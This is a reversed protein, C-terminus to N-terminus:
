FTGATQHTEDDTKGGNCIHRRKQELADERMKLRDPFDFQDEIDAMNKIYPIENRQIFRIPFMFVDMKNTSPFNQKNHKPLM